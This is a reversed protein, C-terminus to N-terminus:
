KIWRIEDKWKSKTEGTVPNTIIYEAADRRIIAERWEKDNCDIKNTFLISSIGLSIVAGFIFLVLGEIKTFYKEPQQSPNM